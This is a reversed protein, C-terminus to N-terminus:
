GVTRLIGVRLDLHMPSAYLSPFISVLKDEQTRGYTWKQGPACQRAEVRVRAVHLDVVVVLTDFPAVVLEEDDIQPVLPSIRGLSPRTTKLPLAPACM